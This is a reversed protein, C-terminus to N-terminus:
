WTRGPELSSHPIMEDSVSSNGEILKVYSSVAVPSIDSVYTITKVITAM